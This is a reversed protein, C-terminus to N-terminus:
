GNQQRKCMEWVWAWKKKLSPPCSISPSPRPTGHRVRPASSAIRPRATVPTPKRPPVYAGWTSTPPLAAEMPPSHRARESANQKTSPEKTSSGGGLTVLGGVVLVTAVLTGTVLAAGYRFPLVEFRAWLRRALM